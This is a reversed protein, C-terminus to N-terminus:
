GPEPLRRSLSTAAAPPRMHCLGEVSDLREWGLSNLAPTHSQLAAVSAFYDADMWRGFFTYTLPFAEHAHLSNDRVIQRYLTQPLATDLLKGQAELLTWLMLFVRKKDIEPVREIAAGTSPHMFHACAYAVDIDRTTCEIDVGCPAAVDHACIAWPGSHSVSLWLPASSEIGIVHWRDNRRELQHTDAWGRREIAQTVLKQGARRQNDRQMKKTTLANQRAGGEFAPPIRTFEVGISTIM